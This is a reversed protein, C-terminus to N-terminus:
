TPQLPQLGTETALDCDMRLKVLYSTENRRHGHVIKSPCLRYKQQSSGFMAWRHIGSRFLSTKELLVPNRDDTETSTELPVDGMAGSPHHFWSVFNAQCKQAGMTMRHWTPITFFRFGPGTEDITGLILHSNKCSVWQCFFPNGASNERLGISLWIHQSFGM